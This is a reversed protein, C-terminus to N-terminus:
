EGRIEIFHEAEELMNDMIELIHLDLFHKAKLNTYNLEKVLLNHLHIRLKEENIM